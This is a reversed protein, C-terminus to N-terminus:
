CLSPTRTQLSGSFALATSTLLQISTRIFTRIFTLAFPLVCMAYSPYMGGYIVKIGLHPYKEAFYTEACQKSWSIMQRGVATVSEALKCCACPSHQKAGSLGYIANAMVKLAKQRGDYINHDTEVTELVFRWRAPTLWGANKGAWEATLRGLAENDKINAKVDKRLKAIEALVAADDMAEAPAGEDEVPPHAEHHLELQELLAAELKMKKKYIGRGGLLERLMVPYIGDDHKTYKHYRRGIVRGKKDSLVVCITTYDEEDPLGAVVGSEDEESIGAEEEGGEGEGEDIGEDIGEDADLEDLQARTRDFDRQADDHAAQLAAIAPDAPDAEKALAIEEALAMVTESHYDLEWALKEKGEMEPRVAGVVGGGDDGNKRDMFQRYLRAYKESETEPEDPQYLTSPCFMHSLMISPYLSKFDLTLVVYDVVYKTIQRLSMGSFDWGDPLNELADIAAEVLDERTLECRKLTDDDVQAAVAEALVERRTDAPAAPGAGGEEEMPAPEEEPEEGTSKLHDAISKALLDRPIDFDCEEPIAKSATLPDVGNGGGYYRRRPPLVTAGEYAMARNKVRNVVRGQKWAEKMFMTSGRLMSGNNIVNHPATSAVRSVQWLFLVTGLRDMIRLPLETDKLCYDGLLRRQASIPISYLETPRDLPRLADLRQKLSDAIAERGRASKLQQRLDDRAASRRANEEKFKWLETTVEEKVKTLSQGHEALWEEVDERGEIIELFRQSTMTGNFADFIDNHTFSVKHDGLFREAMNDLTYNKFALYKDAKSLDRIMELLDLSIRGSLEPTLTVGPMSALQAIPFSKRPLRAEGIKGKTAPEESVVPVEKGEKMKYPVYKTEWRSSLTRGMSYFRGHPDHPALDGMRAVIYPWDFGDGNFSLLLDADYSVILDRFYALMDRESQFYVVTYAHGEFVRQEIADKGLHRDLDDLELLFRLTRGDATRVIVSIQIVQNTPDRAKPFKDLGVKKMKTRDKATGNKVEIDFSVITLPCISQDEPVPVIDQPRCWREIDCTSCVWRLKRPNKVRVWGGPSLDNELLFRQEPRVYDKTEWATVKFPFGDRGTVKVDRMFAVAKRYEFANSFSVYVVPFKKAKTKDKPDPVWNNSRARMKFRAALRPNCLTGSELKLAEEMEEFYPFVDGHLDAHTEPFEVAVTIPVHVQLHVSYGEKTRGTLQVTQRQKPEGAKGWPKLAVAPNKLITRAKAFYADSQVSPCERTAAQSGLEYAVDNQSAEVAVIQM